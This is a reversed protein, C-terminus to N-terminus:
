ATAAPESRCIAAVILGLPVALVGEGIIWRFALMGSVPYTFYETLSQPVATALALLIGFRLGQGPWPKKEVGRIYILVAAAALFLDAVQSIRLRQMMAAPTRWLGSYSAYERALWVAHILYRGASMLLFAALVAGLTRKLSM